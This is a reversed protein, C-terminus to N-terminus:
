KRENNKNSFEYLLIATANSVNLSNVHGVMPITITYDVDKKINSTIGKNEGGIIIALKSSFDINSIKTDGDMDLAAIWYQNKKLLKITQKINTVLCVNVYNYAGTSIKAVSSNLSVSRNKPIIVNTVGFSDCSRLIAGFNNVDQIEDLIIIFEEKKIMQELSIYNFFNGTAAIGQHNKSNTIKDLEHKEVYNVKLKKESAIKEIDKIKKSRNIYIEDVKNNLITEYVCNYGYIIDKSM